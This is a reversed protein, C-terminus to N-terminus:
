KDNRKVVKVIREIGNLDKKIEVEGVSVFIEELKKAQGIGCEMILVGNDKLKLAVTQAIRRYVDLGDEGGDLAMKPEFDKVEKQLSLIDNTPIYPPNSIIVDFSENEELNEFLNSQKFKVDVGNKSANEKALTLAEQSLDIAVVETTPKQKKVAIAIAGSGTCLDLVKSDEKVTKLAELVLEETEPRPILVREDVKITYGYFETSGVVYWLPRGTLREKVCKNIKDVNKASILKESTSLESRKLGTYECIIWEAESPELIEGQKLEETIRKLCANVKEPVIFKSEPISADADMELVKKFSNIAVEIMDDTPEKTTIRQLLLGPAKLPYFVVCDTKALLKLLEYSFGAVVPLLSIKLLMRWVGTVGIFTNALSFVLISILMVFFMFTTGCRDHVRSCKRVNEVTLEMNNEYCSITKHEAGHYMYTRKIDKMLSTLLIYLVFILIRILGEILNYLFGTQSIKTLKAILTTVWQPCMIFLFVSFLLGLAVGFFMVVSMLDVKIKSALWKEFKSPEGEGYVDASRMLIKTGTVLSSFFNICGRIIPVRYIFSKESVPKIRVAEERMIGDADRVTTVLSKAGRMMVGELVAQGGISTRNKCTKNKEKDKM